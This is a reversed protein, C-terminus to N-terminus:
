VTRCCGEMISQHTSSRVPYTCCHQTCLDCEIGVSAAYMVRGHAKGTRYMEFLWGSCGHRQPEHASVLREMVPTSAVLLSNRRSLFNAM